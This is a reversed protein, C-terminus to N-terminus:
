SDPPPEWQWLWDGLAEDGTMEWHILTIPILGAGLFEDHFAGLDFDAGLAAHRAALLSEIQVKGMLYGIGYSPQRLYLDCDTWAVRDDMWYPTEAIMYDVAETVTLVNTHMLIETPVRVARAALLIWVLEATHPSEARFGLHHLTEELYTAWGEIRIGSQFPRMLGRVPREDAEQTRV